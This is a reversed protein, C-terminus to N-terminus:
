RGSTILITPPTTEKGEDLRQYYRQRAALLWDFLFEKHWFKGATEFHKSAAKYEGKSGLIEGARSAALLQYGEDFRAAKPNIAGTYAKLAKDPEGAMLWAEGLYFM